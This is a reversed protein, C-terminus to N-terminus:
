AIVAAPEAQPIEKEKEEERAAEEPIINEITIALKGVKGDSFDTLAEGATDLDYVKQIHVRSTGESQNAAVRELTETTPNALITQVRFPVEGLSEADPLITSIFLGEPKIIRTFNEAEGGLHLVVDVGEPYDLLIQGSIDRSYDIIKYAGLEAVLNAGEIGKATALVKAGTKVALQLAQSGVGGTAGAILVVSQPTLKAADIVDVATAGALGLTGGEAFTVNEPLKALGSNADTTIYEAFSGEGIFPKNIVGFVKDGVQYKEVGPGVQDIVGAFDKGLAAPYHHDLMGKLYGKAAMIDFGNVSTAKVKVRVEGPGPAPSEIEQLEPQADANKLAIAKM